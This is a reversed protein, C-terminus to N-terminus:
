CEREMAHVARVLERGGDERESRTKVSMVRANKRTKKRKPMVGRPRIGPRKRRPKDPPRDMPMRMAMM